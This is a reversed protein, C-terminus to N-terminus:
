SSRIGLLSMRDIYFTPLYAPDDNKIYIGTVYRYDPDFEREDLWLVIEVWMHPPITRNIDLFYLRTESFLPFEETIETDPIGAARQVSTDGAVWYPYANSGVVTVALDGPDISNSGGSLWFSVGLIENRNYVTQTDERVTLFFQGYKRQPSIAAAVRGSYTYTDTALDYVVGQSQETSWDPHLHDDYIPLLAIQEDPATPPSTTLLPAAPTSTPPLPAALAVPTSTPPLPPAPAVSTSTPPLPPAPTSTPLLVAATAPTGTSQPITDTHVVLPLFIAFPEPALDSAVASSRTDPDSNQQLSPTASLLPPLIATSSIDLNITPSRGPLPTPWEAFLSGTTPAPLANSNQANSCGFLLCMSLLLGIM